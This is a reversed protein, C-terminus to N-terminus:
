GDIDEAKKKGRGCNWGIGVVNLRKRKREGEEAWIRGRRREEERRWERVRERM